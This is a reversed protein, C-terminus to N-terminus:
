FTVQLGLRMIRPSQVQMIENFSPEPTFAKHPSHSVNINYTGVGRNRDIVTANNTANFLELAPIVIVPGVALPRQLRLDLQYLNDYRCDGVRGILFNQTVFVDNTVVNVFYPIPFGQRGFFNVGLSLGWPGQYLGSINFQWSADIFPSALGGNDNPGVGTIWPEWLNNPNQISQTTLYQRFSNWGFSARLMWHDSLRKVASLDVGYYRQAFDPRNTVDTVPEGPPLEGTYTYFPEDFSLTFGDVGTATGRARGLLKYDSVTSGTPLHQQLNTTRRFSFTGSVAFDHTFQHDLGATLETTTPTKLGRFSQPVQDARISDPPILNSYGLPRNFLVENPQVLHDHNLDTWYYYYATMGPTTSAWYGLYGIQDAFRAYSARLLTSKTKELAYTASVRPQWNSYQIQWDKAGMGKVGPLGPFSGGDAGCNTCPNAFLPNAFVEGGPSKAQQLDYRLGASVTLNGAVLTDSLTGTWFHKEFIRRYGRTLAAFGPTGPPTGLFTEDGGGNQSGPFSSGSDTIQERYNFGAKLEHHITGTDFFRSAQVGVQKQPETSSAYNWSNHFRYDYWEIDKDLGGIPTSTSTTKQYSAFASGFLVSSFVNSDEVKYFSTPIVDNTRSEPPRTPDDSGVGYELHNSKQYYLAVSNADSIQANLKASWPQLITTLPYQLDSAYYTGTNLSIDQRSGAGWLWLRDRLIPGGLEGGYERIYRTSSTKIPEGNQDIADAPTNNSQWSASAYLFRGSGKLQNTGRKTVVNITVGSNQQELISGGTAVEVNDFTSFDFYTNTGGNQRAFPNGFASGFVGGGTVTAGDVEYAVNGSGKSVINPGGIVASTNGAVNVTDLQVGPVQQILAWVDRATPIETLDAGSFTRGTEVKRTDILPPAGSVAVDEKVTSLSMRFDVQTSQGVSVVVNDHTVKAFGEAAVTVSYQGPAVGLFRFRGNADDGATRPAAPGILTATAGSIPSGQEDTVSGYISGTSGQGLVAAACVLMVTSTALVLRLVRVVAV